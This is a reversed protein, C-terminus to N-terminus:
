RRGRRGPGKRNGSGDQPGHRSWMPFGRRDRLVIREGLLSIEQAILCPPAEAQALLSGRIRVKMGAAIDTELFWQPCLEVAFVRGDDGLLTLVLFPTKKGYMERFDLEQVTGQVDVLRAPDFFHFERSQAPLWAALLPLLLSLARMTKMIM